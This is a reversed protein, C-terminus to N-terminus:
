TEGKRNGAERKGSAASRQKRAFRHQHSHRFGGQEADWRYQEVLVAEDEFVVRFFVAPCGGRSRTCLTGACAVVTGDLQDVQEQHDHGCLVLDAGAAAIRRQARRWRALGMRKSLFGRLLNHHMVLIRAQEPRARAFTEAARRIERRPLHGKVALDRLRPTVSGWSVGHSTLVGTIVAGPLDLTPTLAPGFYRRYKAYKGAAAFPVLPRRWWQVDHNGPMVYVPATRSLERVWARARQFEGHRARQTLDGSLVIADPELDPVLAEIAEIQAVNVDRGFHPDSLHILSFTM